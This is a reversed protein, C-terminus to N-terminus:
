QSIKIPAGAEKHKEELAKVKARLIKLRKDVAAKRQLANRMCVRVEDEDDDWSICEKRVADEASTTLTQSGKTNVEGKKVRLTNQQDFFTKRIVRVAEQFNKRKLQMTDNFEKQAKVYETSIGDGDHAARWAKVDMKYQM